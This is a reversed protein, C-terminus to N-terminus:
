PRSRQLGDFLLSSGFLERKWAQALERRGVGGPLLREIKMQAREAVVPRKSTFATMAESAPEGRSNLKVNLSLTPM